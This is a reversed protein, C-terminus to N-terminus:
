YNLLKGNKIFYIVVSNAITKYAIIWTKNFTACQLNKIKWDPYKCLSYANPTNAISDIFKLMKKAYNIGTDPMLIVESIYTNISDISNIASPKYIVNM